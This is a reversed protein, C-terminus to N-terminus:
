SGVGLEADAGKRLKGVLDTRTTANNMPGGRGADASVYGRQARARGRAPSDAPAPTLKGPEPLQRAGAMIAELPWKERLLTQRHITSTDADENYVASRPVFFVGARFRWASSVLAVRRRALLDDYGVGQASFHTGSWDDAVEM